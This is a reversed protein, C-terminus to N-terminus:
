LYLNMLRHAIFDMIGDVNEMVLDKMSDERKEKVHLRYINQVSNIQAFIQVLKGIDGRLRFRM